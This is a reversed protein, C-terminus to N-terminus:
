APRLQDAVNRLFRLQARNLKVGPRFRQIHAIADSVDDTKGRALVIAAGVLGSRGHGMACHVYTTGEHNAVTKVLEVFARVDNPPCGDLVPHAWYTRNEAIGKRAPWEALLDVVLSTEQPLENVFPWRGLWVAGRGADPAIVLDCRNERSLLRHTHWIVWLLIAYPALALVRLTSIDGSATKNWLSHAPIAYALGVVFFAIGPWILFWSGGRYTAAAAIFGMGVLSFIVAYKM